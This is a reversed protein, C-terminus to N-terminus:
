ALMSLLLWCSAFHMEQVNSPRSQLPPKQSSCRHKKVLFKMSKRYGLEQDASFTEFARGDKPARYAALSMSQLALRDNGLMKMEKRHLWFASVGRTLTATLSLKTKPCGQVTVCASPEQMKSSSETNVQLKDYQHLFGGVQYMITCRKKRDIRDKQHNVIEPKRQKVSVSAQNKELCSDRSSHGTINQQKITRRSTKTTFCTKRGAKTKIGRLTAMTFPSM